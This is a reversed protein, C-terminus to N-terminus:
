GLKVSSSVERLDRVVAKAAQSGIEAEVIRAAYSVCADREACVRVPGLVAKPNSTTPSPFYATRLSATTRYRGCLDCQHTAERREGDGSVVFLRTM